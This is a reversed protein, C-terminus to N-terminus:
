KKTAKIVGFDYLTLPDAIELVKFVCECCTHNELNKASTLPPM